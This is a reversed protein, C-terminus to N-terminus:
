SLRAPPASGVQARKFAQVLAAVDMEKMGEMMEEV